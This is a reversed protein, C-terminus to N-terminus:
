ASNNSRELRGKICKLMPTEIDEVIKHILSKPITKLLGYTEATVTIEIKTNDSFTINFLMYFSSGISSGKMTIKMTNDKIENIESEIRFKGKIFSFPPKIKAKFGNKEIEVDELNPICSTIKNIDNFFQWVDDIDANIEYEKKLEIHM